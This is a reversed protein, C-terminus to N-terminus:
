LKWSRLAPQERLGYALRFFLFRSSNYSELFGGLTNSKALLYCPLLLLVLRSTLGMASDLYPKLSSCQLAASIPDAASLRSEASFGM